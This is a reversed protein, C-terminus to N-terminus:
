IGLEAFTVIEPDDLNTLKISSKRARVVRGNPGVSYKINNRCQTITDESSNNNLLTDVYWPWVVHLRWQSDTEGVVQVYYGTRNQYEEGWGRVKILKDEGILDQLTAVSIDFEEDYQSYSPRDIDVAYEKWSPFKRWVTGEWDYSNLYELAQVTQKLSAIQDATTGQLGSWSSTEKVIEGHNVAINYSWMLADGESRRNENCSIRIEVFDKDDDSGFDYGRSVNVRFDLLNFQSLGQELQQKIPETIKLKDQYEKKRMENVADDYTQQAARRSARRQLAEDRKGATIKM